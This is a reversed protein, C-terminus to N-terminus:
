FGQNKLQNRLIEEESKDEKFIECLLTTAASNELFNTDMLYMFRGIFISAGSAVFFIVIYSQIHSSSKSIIQGVQVVYCLWGFSTLVWSWRVLRGRLSNIKEVIKKRIALGHGSLLSEDVDDKINTHASRLVSLGMLTLSGSIVFDVLDRNFVFTKSELGFFYLFIPSFITLVPFILNNFYWQGTNKRKVHAVVEYTALDERKFFFCYFFIKKIKNLFCRLVSTIWDSSKSM